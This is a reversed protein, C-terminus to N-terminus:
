ETTDSFDFWEQPSNPCAKKIERYFAKNLKRLRALHKHPQWNYNPMLKNNAAYIGGGQPEFHAFAVLKGDKIFVIDIVGDKPTKPYKLSKCKSFYEHIRKQRKIKIRFDRMEWLTKAIRHRISAVNINAQKEVTAKSIQGNVFMRVARPFNEKDVIKNYLETLFDVSLNYQESLTNIIPKM